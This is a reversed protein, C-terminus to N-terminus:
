KKDRKQAPSITLAGVNLIKRSFYLFYRRLRILSYAIATKIKPANESLAAEFWQSDAFAKRFGLELLTDHIVAAKLYHLDDPSWIKHLWKPVSSEFEKGEPIILVWGSHKKGIEWELRKTTIYDRTEGRKAWNINM